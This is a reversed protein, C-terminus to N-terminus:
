DLHVSLIIHFGGVDLCASNSVGVIDEDSPILVLEWISGLQSCDLSGGKSHLQLYFKISRHELIGGANCLFPNKKQLSPTFVVIVTQEELTLSFDFLM